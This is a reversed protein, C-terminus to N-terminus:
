KAVEPESGTSPTSEGWSRVNWGQSTSIKDNKEGLLALSYHQNANAEALYKHAAYKVDDETVNLLQERRRNFIFDTM